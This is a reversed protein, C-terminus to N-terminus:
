ENRKDAKQNELANRKLEDDKFGYAMAAENAREALHALQKRALELSKCSTGYEGLIKENTQNATHIEERWKQMALNYQADKNASKMECENWFNAYKGQAAALVSAEHQTKSVDTQIMAKAQDIESKMTNMEKKGEGVVSILHQMQAKALANERTANAQQQTAWEKLAKYEEAISIHGTRPDFTGFATGSAGTAGSLTAPAATMIIDTSSALSSDPSQM